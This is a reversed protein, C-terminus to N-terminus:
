LISIVFLLVIPFKLNAHKRMVLDNSLGHSGKRLVSLAM